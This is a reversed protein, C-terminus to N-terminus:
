DGVSGLGSTMNSRMKKHTSCSMSLFGRYQIKLRDVIQPLAVIVDERTKSREVEVSLVAATDCACKVGFWVKLASGPPGTGTGPNRLPRLVAALGSDDRQAESKVQALVWDETVTNETDPMGMNRGGDGPQAQEGDMM